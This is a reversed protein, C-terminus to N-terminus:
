KEGSDKFLLKDIQDFATASMGSVVGIAVANMIDSAPFDAIVNMGVAGLIGGAVGCIIPIFKSDLPSAKVGMGILYCIIVISAVPVVSTLVTNLM